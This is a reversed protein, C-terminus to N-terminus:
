PSEKMAARIADLISPYVVKSGGIGAVFGELPDNHWGIARGNLLLGRYPYVQHLLECAADREATVEALQQELERIRCTQSQTFPYVKGDTGTFGGSSTCGFLLDPDRDAGCKPCTSM